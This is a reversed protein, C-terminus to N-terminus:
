RPKTLQMVAQALCEATGGAGADPSTAQVYVQPKRLSVSRPLNSGTPSFDFTAAVAIPTSWANLGTDDDWALQLKGSAPVAPSTVDKYGYLSISRPGDACVMNVVLRLGQIRRSSTVNFSGFQGNPTSIAEM